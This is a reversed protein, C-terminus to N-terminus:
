SAGGVGSTVSVPGTAAVMAAGERAREAAFGGSLARIAVEIQSDDPERTTLSQVALGPAMIWRVLRRHYNASGLKILEYAIGAIFPILVVRSLIRLVLPPQGLLVFVVFSVLVVVILFTTGCRPHERGFRRVSEVDLPAGAEYANITKHEAGHYAYVRRMEPVLGVGGIYGLILTLRIVKEVLNSVLASGIYRDLLGAAAAPLMFFLVMSFGLAVALTGWLVGTPIVNKPSDAPAGAESEDPGAAVNASFMLTRIGLDLTDWLMIAGRVIPVKAWRSTYISSLAETQVQIAGSPDRVAVSMDRPGRMMVGEIVAQGGYSPKGM